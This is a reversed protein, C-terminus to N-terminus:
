IAMATAWAQFGERCSAEARRSVFASPLKPRKSGMVLPLSGGIATLLSINEKHSNEASLPFM